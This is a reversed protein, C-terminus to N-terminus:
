NGEEPFENDFFMDGQERLIRMEEDEEEHVLDVFQNVM